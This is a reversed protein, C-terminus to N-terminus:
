GGSKLSDRVTKLIQEAMYEYIRNMWVDRIVLYPRAPIGKKADGHQHVGAYVLDVGWILTTGEVRYINAGSVSKKGKKPIKSYGSTMKSGSSSGSAGPTTALKKLLGTKQLIRRHPDPTNGLVSHFVGAIGKGRATKEHRLIQADTMDRLRARLKKSVSYRITKAKLPAWGPGEQDFNDAIAQGVLAAVAKRQPIARIETQIAPSAIKATLRKLGSLDVKFSASM